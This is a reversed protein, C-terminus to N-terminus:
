LLKAIRRGAATLQNNAGAELVAQLDLIRMGFRDLASSGVIAHCPVGSQRARTAVESVGKGALSQEDLRGEGTVVARARRLRAEFGIADLVHSAGPVLEAGFAAWLAGSLGGAAGTLPVGRPDRSGFRRALSHLRRTLRLVQDPTAGKQPAFLRAADEFPTRVDCLVVLRASEPVGGARRLAEIAGCGGDTTATGGAGVIVTKAGAELAAAILQGTGFTSAKVPDRESPAVLHFGSAAAGEVVAIAGRRGAGTLGFPVEVPAGMPGEVTATRIEAALPEVLADLTGEGGDAIPCLDTEIGARELGRGVASAVESASLTGKFADPAVLVATPIGAIPV